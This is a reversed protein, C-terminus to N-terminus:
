GHCSGACRYTMISMETIKISSSVTGATWQLYEQHSILGLAHYLPALLGDSELRTAIEELTSEKKIWFRLSIPEPRTHLALEDLYHNLKQQYNRSLPHLM